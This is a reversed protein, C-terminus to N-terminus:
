RNYFPNTSFVNEFVHLNEGGPIAFIVKGFPYNQLEEQFVQAVEAPNQGFVGCGYAGLILTDVQEAKAIDLVFRIRERLVRTNEEDSVFCYKQAAYKNPCACTIVDALLSQDMCAQLQAPSMEKVPMFNPHFFRVNQTYIARNLYLSRNKHKNNWDYYDKQESLIQYLNSAHCLSEEQATSGALFAGGPHKYSAFNLVATRERGFLFLAKVSDRDWIEISPSASTVFTERRPVEQSYITSISHDERFNCFYQRMLADHEQAKRSMEKKNNWYHQNRYNMFLEEQVVTTGSVM